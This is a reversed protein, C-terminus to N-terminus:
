ALINTCYRKHQLEKCLFINTSIIGPIYDTPISSLNDFQQLTRLTRIYKFSKLTSLQTIKESTSTTNFSTTRTSIFKTCNILYVPIPIRKIWCRISPVLFRKVNPIFLFISYTSIRKTSVSIIKKEIQKRSTSSFNHRRTIIARYELPKAFYNIFTNSRGSPKTVRVLYELESSYRLM